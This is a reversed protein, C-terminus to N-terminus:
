KGLYFIEQRQNEMGMRKYEALINDIAVEGMADLLRSSSWNDGAYKISSSIEEGERVKCKTGNPSRLEIIYGSM